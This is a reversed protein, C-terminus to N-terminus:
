NTSVRPDLQDRLGDGVLSIGVVFISLLLGPFVSMWWAITTFQQGENLMAGWEAAPPQVGLGLFGLAAIWLAAIGLWSTTLVIISARVNPLIHRVVMRPTSVGLLKAAEVFPLQRVQVTAGEVVRVFAPVLVLAVALVGNRLGPGMIAAVALALLIGPFALMLDVLRMIAFGVVGGVYGAILGIVTGILAGLVVIALSAGMTILGGHLTRSLVDRGFNDTGLPHGPGPPLMAQSFDQAVPDPLPLFPAALALLVVAAVIVTGAALSRHRFLERANRVRGSFAAAAPRTEVSM